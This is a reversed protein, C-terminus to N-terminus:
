ADKSSIWIVSVPRDTRINELRRKWEEFLVKRDVVTSIKRVNDDYSIIGLAKLIWMSSKGSGVPLFSLIKGVAFDIAWIKENQLIAADLQYLSDPSWDEYFDDYQIHNVELVKKMNEINNQKSLSNRELDMQQLTLGNCAILKELTVDSDKDAYEAISRIVKMASPSENKMNVIRSLTSPQVGIDNAFQQMTRNSGKAEMVLRAFEEKDFGMAEGKQTRLYYLDIMDCKRRNDIKEQTRLYTSYVDQNTKM